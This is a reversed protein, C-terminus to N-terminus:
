MMDLDHHPNRLQKGPMDILSQANQMRGISWASIELFHISVTCVSEEIILM